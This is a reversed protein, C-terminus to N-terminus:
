RRRLRGRAVSKAAGTRRNAAHGGSRDGARGQAGHGAGAGTRGAELGVVAGEPGNLGVLQIAEQPTVAQGDAWAIRVGEAFGKTAEPISAAAGPAERLAKAAPEPESRSCAALIVLALLPLRRM